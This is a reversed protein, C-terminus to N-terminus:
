EGIEFIIRKSKRDIRKMLGLLVEGPGVELFTDIGQDILYRMSSTWSVPSTLQAILESRIAEPSNLPRATVNAIVPIKPHNIKTSEVTNAFESAASSMLPSHAAISIPLSVIKRAGGEKAMRTVVEIATQDGSVVVQGPCNDNAVQVSRGTITTAQVCYAQIQDIDLALIAAMAGPEREGAQKMLQGRKRVLSLGDVFSLSGAAVLATIEGLSHGALYLPLPWTGLDKNAEWAALGCVFLAPQQNATDKLAEEPGSFCLKSLPFKMHVDALDFVARAAPVSEYLKQGM